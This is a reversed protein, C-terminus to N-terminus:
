KEMNNLREVVERTTQKGLDYTGSAVLGILLTLMIPWHPIAIGIGVGIVFSILPYFRDAIFKDAAIKILQVLAMTIGSYFAIDKVFDGVNTVLPDM